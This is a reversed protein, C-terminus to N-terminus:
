LHIKLRRLLTPFVARAVPRLFPRKMELFLGYFGNRQTTGFSSEWGFAKRRPRSTGVERSLRSTRNRWWHRSQAMQAAAEVTEQVARGSQMQINRKIQDGNWTIKTSAM